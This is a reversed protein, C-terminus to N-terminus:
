AIERGLLLYCRCFEGVKRIRGGAVGSGSELLM